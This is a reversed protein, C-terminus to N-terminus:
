DFFKKQVYLNSTALKEAIKKSTDKQYYIKSSDYRGQGLQKEIAQKIGLANYGVDVVNKARMRGQQRSGINVVPIGLFSCEKIGASSNGILCKAKKLLALFKEPSSFKLFQVFNDIETNERFRRIANSIDDTGADINPWFWVVPIKLYYIVKLIEETNEKNKNIETTVPHQIVLLFPKNFSIKSGVGIKKMDEENLDINNNIAAFEVDPCGFNFVYDPNEGMKIIRQRSGENTAFHIHALKTIAHRISEDITGSLDGGEIHALPINMYVAAIAASLVEYRDGKIVVLDPNLNDFVSAFEMLGLGATKTMAVNSGGEINMTLKASPLLGDDRMWKEVDAYKKLIASGGIIIQLEVDSRKKLEQIILKSRAYHIKSTIIFCIKRKYQNM